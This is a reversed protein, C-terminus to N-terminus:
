NAYATLLRTRTAQLRRLLIASFRRTLEFGLVPDSECAARAARADFEFAQVPQTAVAGFRWQYPPQMWSLGLVDNRGLQDIV